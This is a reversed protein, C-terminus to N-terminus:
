MGLFTMKLELYVAICARFKLYKGRCFFVNEFRTVRLEYSTVRLEYSTVRLEYSTVRLEYSTVRNECPASGKRFFKVNRLWELFLCCKLSGSPENCQEWSSEV